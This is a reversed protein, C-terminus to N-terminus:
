KTTTTVVVNDDDDNDEEGDDDDYDEKYELIEEDDCKSSESGDDNTIDDAHSTESEVIAAEMEKFNTIDKNDDHVDEMRNTPLHTDEDHVETNSSPGVLLPGRQTDDIKVHLPETCTPADYVNSWTIVVDDQPRHAVTKARKSYDQFNMSAQFSNFSTAVSPRKRKKQDNSLSGRSFNYHSSESGKLISKVPNTSSNLKSKSSLSSANHAPTPTVGAFGRRSMLADLEEKDKQLRRICSPIDDTSSSLMGSESSRSSTENSTPLMKNNQEQIICLCL